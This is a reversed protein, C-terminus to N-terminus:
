NGFHFELIQALTLAKGESDTEFPFGAIAGSDDTDRMFQWADSRNEFTSMYHVGECSFMVSHFTKSM